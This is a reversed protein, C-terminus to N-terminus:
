NRKQFGPIWGLFEYGEVAMEQNTPAPEQQLNYEDSFYQDKSIPYSYKKVSEPNFLSSEYSRLVTIASSNEKKHFTLKAALHAEGLYEGTPHHLHGTEWRGTGDNENPPPSEWFKDLATWDRREEAWFLYQYGEYPDAVFGLNGATKEISLKAANPFDSIISINDNGGGSWHAYIKLPTTIEAGAEIKECSNDCEWDGDISQTSWHDFIHDYDKPLIETAYTSDFQEKYKVWETYFNRYDYGIEDSQKLSVYYEVRYELRAVYTVPDLAEPVYYKTEKSVCIENEGDQKFWGLFRYGDPLKGNEAGIVDIYAGKEDFDISTEGVGERMTTQDFQDLEHGEFETIINALENKFIPYLNMAKEVPDGAQYIENQLKLEELQQSTIARYGGGTDPNPVTTWGYFTAKEPVETPQIDKLSSGYQYYGENIKTTGDLEHFAVRAKIDAIFLTNDLKNNFAVTYDKEKNEPTGITYDILEQIDEVSNKQIGEKRHWGEFRYEEVKDDPDSDKMEVQLKVDHDGRAHLGQTAFQYADETSVDQNVLATKGITVKAANPFDFAAYVTNGHVPIGLDYDMVWKNFHEESYRSSRPITGTLDYEKSKWFDYDTYVDDTKAGYEETDGKSGVAQISKKTVSASRKFYSNKVSTEDNNVNSIGSINVDTQIIPIVLIANYQKSHINGAYHCREIHSNGRLAGTIGGAYGAIGSGVAM